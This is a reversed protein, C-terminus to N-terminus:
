KKIYELMIYFFIVFFFVFTYKLYMNTIFFSYIIENMAGESVVVLVIFEIIIYFILSLDLSNAQKRESANTCFYLILLMLMINHIIKISTKLFNPAFVMPTTLMTTTLTARATLMSSTPM